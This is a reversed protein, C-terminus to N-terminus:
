NLTIYGKKKGDTEYIRIEKIQGPALESIEEVTIRKGDLYWEYDTEDNNKNDVYITIQGTITTMTTKSAKKNGPGDMVYVLTNNGNDNSESVSVVEHDPYLVEIKENKDTKITFKGNSDTTVGTSKGNVKIIVGTMPDGTTTTVTGRVTWKYKDTEKKVPSSSPQSDSQGAPDPADTKKSSYILSHEEEVSLNTGKHGTDYFDETSTSRIEGVTRAVVPTNIVVLAAAVAPVLALARMRRKKEPRNKMM